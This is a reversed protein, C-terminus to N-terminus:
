PVPDYLHFLYDYIVAVGIGFLIPNRPKIWKWVLIPDNSVDLKMTHILDGDTQGTCDWARQQM